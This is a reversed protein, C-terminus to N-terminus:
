NQPPFNRQAANTLLPYACTNLTRLNNNNSQPIDQNNNTQINTNTPPFFSYNFPDYYRSSTQQYNDTNNESQNITDSQQFASPISPPDYRPRILNRTNNSVNRPPSSVNVSTNHISNM